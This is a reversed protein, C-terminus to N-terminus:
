KMGDARLFNKRIQLSLTNLNVLKGLSASFYNLREDYMMNGCLYLYLVRLKTFTSLIETLNSLFTLSSLGLNGMALDLHLNTLNIM